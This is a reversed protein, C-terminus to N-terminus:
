GLVEVKPVVVSPAQPRSGVRRWAEGTRAAWITRGAVVAWFVVLLVFLAAGVDDLLGSGWNEAVALTASTFAGLPFTFGWWGLGYPLPGRRLYRALLLVSACFWWAGFGWLATGTLLSLSKVAEGGTGLVGLSAPVMKILGLSGVGIPGLGIWLSPALAASPLPHLVLREHLMSMVLVYLLLGMGWFAYSLAVLLRATSPSSGPVLPVLALPVVINVVPPIFWGGNVVEPALGKGVFLVFAFAVSAVFALPVGAWALGLVLDKAAAAGVLSPGVAAAAAALVLIGGPLTGYLAGVVPDKLDELASRPHVVLRGIYPVALAVALVSALVVMVQGFHRLAPDLAKLGGPGSFAVIGVIATGMVAGFWGPHFGQLGVLPAEGEETLVSPGAGAEARVTQGQGASELSLPRLSM